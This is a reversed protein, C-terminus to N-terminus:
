RTRTAQRPPKSVPAWPPIVPLLVGYSVRGILLGLVISVIWKVTNSPM